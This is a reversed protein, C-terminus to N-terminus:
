IIGEFMFNNVKNTTFYYPLPLVRSRDCVPSYFVFLTTDVSLDIFLKEKWGNLARVYCMREAQVPNILLEPPASM